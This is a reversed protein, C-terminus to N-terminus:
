LGPVEIGMGHVWYGAVFGGIGVALTVFLWLLKLGQRRVISRTRMYFLRFPNPSINAAVVTVNDKGGNENAM